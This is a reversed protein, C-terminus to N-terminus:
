VANRVTSVGSLALKAPGKGGSVEIGAPSLLACQQIVGMKSGFLGGSVDM